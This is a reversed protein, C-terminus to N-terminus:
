QKVYHYVFGVGNFNKIDAQKYNLQTLKKEILRNPDSIEVLYNVLYIDPSDELVTQLDILDEEVKAPFKKLAGIGQLSNHAYYDFPAFSGNSEFLVKSFSPQLKLYEVLGKWDERQFAPNFLYVGSSIFETLIVLSLFLYQVKTKFTSIGLALLIIFAPLVFLLRFYSYVPIVFSIFWALFIPIGIWSFLLTKTLYDSKRAHIILFAFLMGVPLFLLVYTLHDPHSIRGIIFKVYTLILPKVGSEGVVMKWAPVNLATSQGINIQEFLSPMWWIFSVTAVFLSILWTKLFQTKRTLFIIMLQAPFILYVLYDSGLVMLASVLYGVRNRGIKGMERIMRIFFLFNLTAAFAALAYMRAEQSYYIHLPNIALLLAAILGTKRDVLNKGILYTLLVTTVGFIVSPARVSIESWGFAKTWIWLLAFYGPPHFDYKSYELIIGFLSFNKTALVNIAEDLWLSQNLSILRLILGITLILWIM